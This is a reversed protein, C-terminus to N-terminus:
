ECCSTVSDKANYEPSLYPIGLGMSRIILNM